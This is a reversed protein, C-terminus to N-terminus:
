LYTSKNKESLKFFATTSMRTYNTFYNESELILKLLNTQLKRQCTAAFAVGQVMDKEKGKPKDGKQVAYILWLGCINELITADM